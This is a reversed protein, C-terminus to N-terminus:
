RQSIVMGGRPDNPSPRWPRLELHSRSFRPRFGTEPESTPPHTKSPSPVPLRRRISLRAPTFVSSPHSGRYLHAVIKDHCAEHLFVGHRKALM